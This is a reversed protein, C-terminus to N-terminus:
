KEKHMHMFPMIEVEPGFDTTVTMRVDIEQLLVLM